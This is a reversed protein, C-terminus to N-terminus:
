QSRDLLRAYVDEILDAQVQLSRHEAIFAAGKRGMARAEDPHRLLWVIGEAFASPEYPVCLGGGSRSLLDQQELIDNAVVPCAMGMMEVLKTPSSMAYLPIPRIPSVGVDAAAIYAPIQSRPQQGTFIVHEAIGLSAAADKLAAMDAPTDGAGVMMLRADPVEALVLRMAQLLFDLRRLPSM